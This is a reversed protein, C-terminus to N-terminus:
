EIRKPSGGLRCYYSDGLDVYSNGFTYFANFYVMEPTITLRKGTEECEWVSDTWYDRWEKIKETEQRM